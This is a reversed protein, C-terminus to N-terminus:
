PTSIPTATCLPPPTPTPALYSLTNNDEEREVVQNISDVTAQYQGSPTTGSFYLDIVEGPAAGENVQQRTNNLDVAFPGASALGINEVLVRIEYPTYAAVCNTQRGSMELYVLKIILDPLSASETPPTITHPSLTEAPSVPILTCAAMGLGLLLLAFRATLNKMLM